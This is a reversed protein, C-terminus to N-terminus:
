RQSYIIGSTLSWARDRQARLKFYLEVLIFLANADRIRECKLRELSLTFLYASFKPKDRAVGPLFLPDLM